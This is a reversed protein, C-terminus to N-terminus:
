RQGFLVTPDVDNYYDRMVTYKEMYPAVDVLLGADVWKVFDEEMNWWWIIDPRQTEDTMLLTIKATADSWGPLAVVTIDLNYREELWQEIQSDPQTYGQLCVVTMRMTESQNLVDIKEDSVPTETEAGADASEKQESGSAEQGAAAGQDAAGKDSGGGCGALMGVAMVASLLLAVIRKKM